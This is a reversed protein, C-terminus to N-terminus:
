SALKWLDDLFAQVLEYWLVILEDVISDRGIEDFDCSVSVSTTNEL